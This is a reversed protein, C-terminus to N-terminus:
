ARIVAFSRSSEIEGLLQVREAAVDLRSPLLRPLTFFPLSLSPHSCGIEQLAHDALQELDEVFDKAAHQM